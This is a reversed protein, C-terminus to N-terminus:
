HLKIFHQRDTSFFVDYSPWNLLSADQISVKHSKANYWMKNIIVGQPIYESCWICM